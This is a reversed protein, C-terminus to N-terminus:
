ITCFFVLKGIFNSLVPNQPLHCTAVLAQNQGTVNLMETNTSVPHNYDTEVM